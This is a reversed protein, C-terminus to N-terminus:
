KKSTLNPFTEEKIANHLAKDAKLYEVALDMSSGLKIESYYLGDNKTTIIKKDKATILLLRISSEEAQYYKIVKEPYKRAQTLLYDEVDSAHANSMDKEFLKCILMQHQLNDDLVLSQAKHIVKALSVRQEASKGPQNIYLEAIGYRGRPNQYKDVVPTGGDILYEGNSNKAAREPAILVSNKIAEWKAAQVMDSLDFTDGQRVIIPETEPLFYKKGDNFAQKDKESMIMDGNSDVKRVCDPYRGAKDPCPYIKYQQGPVKGYSAGIVIYQSNANTM